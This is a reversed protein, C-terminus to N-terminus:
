QKHRRVTVFLLFCRANCQPMGPRRIGDRPVYWKIFYHLGVCVCVCVRVCVYIYLISRYLTTFLFIVM